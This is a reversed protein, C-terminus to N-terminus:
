TRPENEFWNSELCRRLRLRARHLMVWLNTSAVTLVKCAENGTLGDIECLRFAEAQAPPLGGICDSFVRWFEQNELASDPDSWPSPPSRWRGDAAFLEDDAINSDAGESLAVTPKRRQSRWYDVLKHKLIGVLWTRESSQGAFRSRAKLAALLTEQVLDEATATDRVRAYAYGFLIDGYQDLWREPSSTAMYLFRETENNNTCRRVPLAGIVLRRSVPIPSANL